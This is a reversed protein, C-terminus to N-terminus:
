FNDTRGAALILLYSWVQCNLAEGGWLSVQVFPWPDYGIGGIQPPHVGMYWRNKHERTCPKSGCGFSRPVHANWVAVQHLQPSFVCSLSVCVCVCCGGGFAEEAFPGSDLQWKPRFLERAVCLVPFPASRPTRNQNRITTAKDKQFGRSLDQSYTTLGVHIRKVRGALLLHGRKLLWPGRGFPPCVSAM